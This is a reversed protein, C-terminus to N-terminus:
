RGEFYAISAFMRHGFYDALDERQILMSHYNGYKFNIRDFALFKKM